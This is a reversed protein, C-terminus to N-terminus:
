HCICCWVSIRCSRYEGECIWSALIAIAQRLKTRLCQPSLANGRCRRRLTLNWLWLPHLHPLLGQQTGTGHMEIYSIESQDTGAANLIKDFIAVQAGVHPRTISVAEASHNTYAGNITAWIPDGDAQADELRKM